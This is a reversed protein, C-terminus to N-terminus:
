GASGATGADTAKKPKASTSRRTEGTEAAPAVAAAAPPESTPEAVAKPEPKPEAVAESTPEPEIAAPEPPVPKLILAGLPPVRLDLSFPRGHAEVPQAQVCGGNGWGSGQYCTADTNLLELYPGDKPVGIRYRERAVPTFNCVVVVFDDPDRALRLYSIISNDSDHCDIWQFGEAFCDTEYLAPQSRYLRNLDRILMHVGQQYPYQLLHWDLSKNHNWEDGQAFECGMFLLKKGSMTWMFAFYSRVNAFRQWDDGPMKNLLSGKGHVVEDHSIPLIFNETFAYLLGFTLLDHHYRRHVPDKCIYRLTDNM